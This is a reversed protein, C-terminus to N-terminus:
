IAHQGDSLGRPSGRETGDDRQVIFLHDRQAAIIISCVASVNGVIFGDTVPVLRMRM